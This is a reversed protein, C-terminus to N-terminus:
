DRVAKVAVREDNLGTLVVIPVGSLQAQAQAQTFTDLGQADPLSLDLLVLNFNDQSLQQIAHDLRAVRVLEIDPAGAQALMERLLLADSPDDEVLLIRCAQDSM